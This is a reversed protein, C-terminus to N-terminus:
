LGSDGVTEQILERIVDTLRDAVTPAPPRAAVVAGRADEERLWCESCSWTALVQDPQLMEDLLDALHALYAIKAVRKGGCKPCRIALMLDQVHRGGWDGDSYYYGHYRLELGDVTMWVTPDKQGTLGDEDAESVPRLPQWQEPTTDVGLAQKLYRAADKQAAQLGQEQALRASELSQELSRQRAARAREQVTGQKVTTDTM